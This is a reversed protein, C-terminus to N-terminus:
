NGTNSLKAFIESHVGWLSCILAYITRDFMEEDVEVFAGDPLRLRGRRRRKAQRALGVPVLTQHM